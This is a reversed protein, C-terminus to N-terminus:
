FPTYDDQLLHEDAPEYMRGSRIGFHLHHGLLDGCTRNKVCGMGIRHPILLETLQKHGKAVAEEDKKKTGPKLPRYFGFGATLEREIHSSEAWAALQPPRVIDLHQSGTPRSVQCLTIVVINRTQALDSLYKVAKSISTRQDGEGELRHLHDLILVQPTVGIAKSDAFADGVLQDLRRVDLSMCEPMVLGSSGILREEAELKKALDPHEAKWQGWQNLHHVSEPIGLNAMAMTLITTGPLTETGLYMGHVEEAILRNAFARAFTTKGNGARAGFGYQRGRVFPGFKRTASEMPWPLGGDPLGSDRIKRAERVAAWQHAEISTHPQEVM